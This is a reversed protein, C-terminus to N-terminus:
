VEVKCALGLLERNQRLFKSGIRLRFVGHLDSSKFYSWFIRQLEDDEDNTQWTGKIRQVMEDVVDFIEEPTNEILEVGMAEYKDGFQFRGVGSTIIERVTMFRREKILWYKKFIMLSNSLWTHAYELASFNVHVEPRKFFWPIADLGSGCSIFFRCNSILYIDLLETRFGRAAYEIIKPNDTNMLESVVAGMRVVHYGKRTLEEAAPMYNRISCNRFSHYDFNIEPFTDNLYRQDRNLMCVYPSGGKIGMKEIALEAERIEKETFKLYVESKEILGLIDRGGKKVKIIHDGGFSFRNALKFFDKVIGNALMVKKRASFVRKWMKLLQHNCVYRRRDFGDHFIDWTHQPQVGYDKECLYLGPLTILPGIKNAYLSGFRIFIFPKILRIGLYILLVGLFTVTEKLAFVSFPFLGRKKIKKKLKFPLERLIEKKFVKTAM